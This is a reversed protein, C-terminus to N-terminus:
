RAHQMAVALLQAVTRTRQRRLCLVLQPLGIM